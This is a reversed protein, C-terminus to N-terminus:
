RVSKAKKDLAVITISLAVILILSLYIKLWWDNIAFYIGATVVGSWFGVFLWIYALEERNM